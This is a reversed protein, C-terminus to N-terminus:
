MNRMICNYGKKLPQAKGDLIIKAECPVTVTIKEKDWYIEIGKHTAKLSEVLLCPKIILGKEDLQIGAIHRYLFYDIESYMHHNLSQDMEWTECLTTSGQNIWYAYSPMEPNKVAKLATETYGNDSLASFIYKMGLIGCDFHYGNKIILENLLASYEEAEKENTLGQYIICALFTQKEFLEEDNFFSGRFVRRITDALSLYEKEDEKMIKAYEAMTKSFVYYYATDTVRVPCPKCTKPPDWDGLGFDLIYNDTMTSLFNMYKKQAEWAKEIISTDGTNQYVQWPILMLAADWAPGSGWNYGWSSNPAICSIQGSPRQTDIIDGIWKDYAKLMDFNMLSQQCSIASDGTWGNQERHPCDTPISMFNLLTSNVSAKHLKNLMEDSCEFSGVTELATHIVEAEIRFNEPTNLAKIYRFGHYAFDSAFSEEGGKTIYVDKNAHNTGSEAIYMNIHSDPEGDIIKEAYELTIERDPECETYIRARGTINEGFDYIGNEYKVPQVARIVKPEPIESPKPIGGPAKCIVANKWGSADFSPLEWGPIELRADYAEGERSHNFVSPGKEAKWSSDSVFSEYEGDAFEIDLEIVAKPHHRWGSAAFNWHPCIDNYLGNGLHISITFTNEILETVEYSSYLVTKDFATFPTTFVGDTVAKGNIKIIGYGLMVTNLTAKKIDKSINFKKRLLYSGDTKEEAGYAIWKSKEFM